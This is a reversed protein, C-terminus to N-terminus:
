ASVNHVIFDFPYGPNTPPLHGMDTMIMNYVDYHSECRMCPTDRRLVGLCIGKGKVGFSM